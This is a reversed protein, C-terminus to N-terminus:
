EVSHTVSRGKLAKESVVKLGDDESSAGPRCITELCAKAWRQSIHIVISGLDKVALDEGKFMRGDSAIELAAFRFLRVRNVGERIGRSVRRHAIDKCRQYFVLPEDKSESGDEHIEFMLCDGISSCGQEATIAIEFVQGSVAEIYRM